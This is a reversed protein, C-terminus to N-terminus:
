LDRPIRMMEQWQAVASWRNEVGLKYMINKLHFKITNLSVHFITAIEWNTKGEQVWKMIEHERPTLSTFPQTQDKTPAHARMYAFLVHPGIIDLITRLRPHYRREFNSFALYVSTNGSGRIAMSHCTKIGFDLKLSLINAPDTLNPDDTSSAQGKTTRALLLVAPDTVLAQSMYLQCFEINYSSHSLGPEATLDTSYHGCASYESPVFQSIWKMLSPIQSPNLVQNACFATEQILAIDRRSLRADSM